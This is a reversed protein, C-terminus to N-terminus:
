LGMSSLIIEREVGSRVLDRPKDTAEHFLSPLFVIDVM